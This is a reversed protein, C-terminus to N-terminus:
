WFNLCSYQLRPRLGDETEFVTEDHRRCALIWNHWIEWVIYWPCRYLILRSIEYHHWLIIKREMKRMISTLPPEVRYKWAMDHAPLALRVDKCIGNLNWKWQGPDEEMFHKHAATFLLVLYIAPYFLFMVKKQNTQKLSYHCKNNEFPSLVIKLCGNFSRGKCVILTFWSLLVHRSM